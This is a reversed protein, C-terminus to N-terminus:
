MFRGVPTLGRYAAQEKMLEKAFEAKLQQSFDDVTSRQSSPTPQRAPGGPPTAMPHRQESAFRGLGHGRREMEESQRADSLQDYARDQELRQHHATSMQAPVYDDLPPHTPTPSTRPDAQVMHPVKPPLEELLEPHRMPDTIFSFERRSIKEKELGDLQRDVEILRDVLKNLVSNTNSLTKLGVDIQTGLNDSKRLVDGFR